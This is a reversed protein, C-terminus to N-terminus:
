DFLWHGNEVHDIPEENRPQAAVHNQWLIANQMLVRFMDEQVVVMDPSQGRLNALARNADQLQVELRGLDQQLAEINNQLQLYGQAEVVRFKPNQALECKKFMNEEYVNRCAPCDEERYFYYNKLLKWESYIVFRFFFM